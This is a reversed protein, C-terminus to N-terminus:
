FLGAATPTKGGSKRSPGAGNFSWQSYMLKRRRKSGLGKAKLNRALVSAVSSPFESSSISKQHSEREKLIMETVSDRREQNKRGHMFNSLEDIQTFSGAKVKSQRALSYSYQRNLNIAQAAGRQIRALALHALILSVMELLHVTCCSGAGNFFDNFFILSNISPGSFM